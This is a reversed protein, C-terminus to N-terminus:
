FTLLLTLHIKWRSYYQFYWPYVTIRQERVAHGQFKSHSSKRVPLFQHHTRYQPIDPHGVSAPSHNHCWAM